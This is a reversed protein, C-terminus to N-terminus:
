DTQRYNILRFDTYPEILKRQQTKKNTEGIIKTIEKIRLKMQKRKELKLYFNLDSFKTMKKKIKNM